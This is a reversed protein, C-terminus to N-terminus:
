AALPLRVAVRLGPANDGLELRSDHLAAVAAALSLGLGSGPTTRSSELRYFRQLVKSRLEAPIGPGSDAVVAEVCGDRLQAGVTIRAGEPSHRVANELLNAFMQMLLERDGRVPLVGPLESHLEQQKDELASQYVEVVTRLVEALDVRAFGAKRAGSEIQAIRLLAGFTELIGDLEGLTAELVQKLAGADADRRQALEIRQRLRTLPTRLDHAIDTSVQRLGEMLAQIRDLMANLSTALHDFEDASGTVPIRRSLDGGVIDRSTRSVSEIRRLVGLGMLVGGALAVLMAGALGWLFSGVLMEQMEHLQLTSMGVFLYGGDALAVGRGRIGQMSDGRHRASGPWDRIGPVPDIRPLNGAVVAGGGDELLYFFGTTRSSLDRLVAALGGSRSDLADSQVEALEAAVTADIQGDMFRAASFYVVAFLLLFSLGTLGAYLLTLRFSTTRLLETQHV